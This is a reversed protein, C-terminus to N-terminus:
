LATQYDKYSPVNNISSTGVFRTLNRQDNQPIWYLQNWMKFLRRLCRAFMIALKIALVVGASPRTRDLGIHDTLVTFALKLVAARCQCTYRIPWSTFDYFAATRRKLSSKYFRGRCKGHSTKVHFHKRTIPGSHTSDSTVAPNGERLALLAFTQQKKTTIRFLQEIFLRIALSKIRWQEWAVESHPYSIFKYFSCDTKRSDMPFFGEAVM